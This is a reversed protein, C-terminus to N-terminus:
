CSDADTHRRVKEQLIFPISSSLGMPIGQLTYLLLLLLMSSWDSAGDDEEDGADTSAKLAPADPQPAEPRPAAGGKAPKRRRTLGPSASPSAGDVALPDTPPM